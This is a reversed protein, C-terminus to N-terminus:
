LVNFISYLYYMFYLCLFNVNKIKCYLVKFLVPTGAVYANSNQKWVDQAQFLSVTSSKELLRGPPVLPLSGAQWHPSTLSVPELSPNGSGRSSLM